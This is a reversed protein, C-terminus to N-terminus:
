AEATGSSMVIWKPDVIELGYAASSKFKWDDNDFDEANSGMTPSVLHPNESVECVADTHAVSALMFYKTKTADLAGAATTALYPLKLLRYKAKYVNEIGSNGGTVSATSKLIELATNETNPDDAIILTDPKIVIKNGSADIMQQAFLTEAAELGGKSLLPNNAIRNRYTTASGPVIHASYFLQFGDGVTTAITTGDMDVYSTDAGFTFRHTLDLEMRQSTAEGLGTLVRKIERYKNYTRMEWTIVAELGVRYKTITKSYNQTPNEQYYNDSEDKRRAFTFGDISSHDTVYLKNNTVEYLQKAVMPVREYGKRWMITANKVFDYFTSSNIKM